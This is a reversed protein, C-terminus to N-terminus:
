IVVLFIVGERVCLRVCPSKYNYILKAVLVKVNAESVVDKVTIVETRTPQQQPQSLQSLQNNSPGIM